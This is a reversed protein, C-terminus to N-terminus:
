MYILKNPSTHKNPLFMIFFLVSVFSIFTLDTSSAKEITTILRAMFCDISFKNEKIESINTSTTKSSVVTNISIAYLLNKYAGRILVFFVRFFVFELRVIAFKILM